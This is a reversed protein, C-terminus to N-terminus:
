PEPTEQDGIEDFLVVIIEHDSIMDGTLHVGVVSYQFGRIGVRDSSTVLSRTATAPFATLLTDKTFTIMGLVPAIVGISSLTEMSPSFAVHGVASVAAAYGKNRQKYISATASTTYKYVNVPEAYTSFMDGLFAKAQALINQM